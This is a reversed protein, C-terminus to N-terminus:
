KPGMNVVYSGGVKSVTLLPLLLHLHSNGNDGQTKFVVVEDKHLSLETETEANFDYKAKYMVEAVKAASLPPSAHALSSPGIEQASSISQDQDQAPVTPSANPRLIPNGSDQLVVDGQVQQRYARAMIREDSEHLIALMLAYAEYYPKNASDHKGGVIVGKKCSKSAESLRGLLFLAHLICYATNNLLAESEQDGGDLRVLVGLVDVCLLEAEHAKSLTRYAVLVEALRFQVAENGVSGKDVSISQLDDM